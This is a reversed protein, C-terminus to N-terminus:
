SYSAVRVPLELLTANNPIPENYIAIPDQEDRAIVTAAKYIGAHAVILVLEADGAIDQVYALAQKVRACFMAADEGGAAAMQTETTDYVVERSQLELTGSSKEKLADVITIAELPYNNAEAIIKATDLARSLPSSVIMDFTMATAKIMAATAQAQAIGKNTLPEDSWGAVVGRANATSEGHRIFYYRTM